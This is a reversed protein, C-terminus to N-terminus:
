DILWDILEFICLAPWLGSTYLAFFGVHLMGTDINLSFRRGYLRNEFTYSQGIEPPFRTNGAATMAVMRLVGGAEGGATLEM